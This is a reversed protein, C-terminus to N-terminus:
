SYKLKSQQSVPGARHRSTGDAHRATRRNRCAPLAYSKVSLVGFLNQHANSRCTAPRLLALISHNNAAQENVAQENITQGFTGHPGQPKQCGQQQAQRKRLRDKDM